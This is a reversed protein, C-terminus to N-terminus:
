RNVREALRDILSNPIRGTGRTQYLKLTSIIKIVDDPCLNFFLALVYMATSVEVSLNDFEELARSIRQNYDKTMKEKVEDSVGKPIHLPETKLFTDNVKEVERHITQAARLIVNVSWKDNHRLDKHTQKKVCLEAYEKGKTKCLIEYNKSLRLQEEYYIETLQVCREAMHVFEVLMSTLIDMDRKALKNQETLQQTQM